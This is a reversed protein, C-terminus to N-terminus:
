TNIFLANTPSLFKFTILFARYLLLFWFNTTELVCIAGFVSLRPYFKFRRITEEDSVTGENRLATYKTWAEQNNSYLLTRASLIGSVYVYKVLLTFNILYPLHQQYYKWYKRFDPIMRVKSMTCQGVDRLFLVSLTLIVYCQPANTCFSQLSLATFKVYQSHTDTAKTICWTVRMSWVAM